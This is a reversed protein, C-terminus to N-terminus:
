IMQTSLIYLTTLTAVSVVTSVVIKKEVQVQDATKKHQTHISYDKHM